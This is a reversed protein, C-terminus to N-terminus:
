WLCFYNYVETCGWFAQMYFYIECLMETPCFKPNREYGMNLLDSVAYSDERGGVKDNREQKM